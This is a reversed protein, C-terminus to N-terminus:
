LRKEQPGHLLRPDKRRLRVHNSTNIKPPITKLQHNPKIPSHNNIDIQPINTSTTSLQPNPIFSHPPSKFQSFHRSCVFSSRIVAIQDYIGCLLATIVPMHSRSRLWLCTSAMAQISFLPAAGQMHPTLILGPLRCIQATLSIYLLLM